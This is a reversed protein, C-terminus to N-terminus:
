YRFLPFLYHFEGRIFRNLELNHSFLMALCRAIHSERDACTGAGHGIVEESIFIEGNHGVLGLHDPCVNLGDHWATNAKDDIHTAGHAHLADAQHIGGPPNVAVVGIVGLIVAINADAKFIIRREGIHNRHSVSDSLAHEDHVKDSVIIALAGFSCAAKSASACLKERSPFWGSKQKGYFLVIASKTNRCCDKINMENTKERLDTLLGKFFYRM